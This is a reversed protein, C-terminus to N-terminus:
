KRLFRIMDAGNPTSWKKYEEFGFKKLLNITNKNNIKVDSVVTKNHRNAIDLRYKVLSEGIGKQRYDKDVLINKLQLYNLKGDIGIFEKEYKTPNANTLITFQTYGIIKSNEFELKGMNVRARKPLGNELYLDHNKIQREIDSEYPIGGLFNKDISNQSLFLNM